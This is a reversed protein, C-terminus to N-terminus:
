HTLRMFLNLVMWLALGTIYAMLSMKLSLPIMGITGSYTGEPGTIEVDVDYLYLSVM